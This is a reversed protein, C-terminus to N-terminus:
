FSLEDVTDFWDEFSEYESDDSYLHQFEQTPEGSEDLYGFEEQFVRVWESVSPPYTRLAYNRYLMVATSVAPIKDGFVLHERALEWHRDRLSYHTDRRRGTIEVVNRLPSTARVSSQAYSGAVNPNQWRNHRSPEEEVFLYVYPKSKEGGPVSLFTDFFERFNVSLNSIRGEKAATRRICLYGAFTRHIRRRRLDHLCLAVRDPRVVYLREAEM